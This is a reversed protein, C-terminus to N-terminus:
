HFNIKVKNETAASQRPVTAYSHIDTTCSAAHESLLPPRTHQKHQAHTQTHTNVNIRPTFSKLWTNASVTLIVLVVCTFMGLQVVESEKLVLIDTVDLM